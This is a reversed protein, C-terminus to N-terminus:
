PAVRIAGCAIRAGSNGSPDTREDDAVAHIVLATGPNGLSPPRPGLSAGPVTFQGRGVGSSDVSLNGLDGLHPGLPNAHGHQRGLPNWHGGASQFQPPDCSPTAHLHVGHMGPPLHAVQLTLGVNEGQEVVIISGIRTGSGDLLPFNGRASASPAISAAPPAAGACGALLPLLLLTRNM